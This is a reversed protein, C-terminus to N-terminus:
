LHLHEDRYDFVPVTLGHRGLTTWHRDGTLVPLQHESAYALCTLDGLSLKKRKTAATGSAAQSQWSQKDVDKLLPVHRACALDFSAVTLGLSLFTTEVESPSAGARALIYMTEALNVATITARALVASFRLAVPNQDAIGNLLSADVVLQGAPLRM